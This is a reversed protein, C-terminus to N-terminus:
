KNLQNYKKQLSRNNDLETKWKKVEQAYGEQKKKWEARDQDAQRKKDDITKELGLAMNKQEIWQEKESVISKSKVNYEGIATQRKAINEKIKAIKSELESIQKNESEIQSNEKKILTQIQAEQKVMTAVNQDAKKTNEQIQTKQAALAKLNEDIAKINDETIKQNKEYSEKNKQSNEVNLDIQKLKREAETESFAVRGIFFVTVLVVIFQIWKMKIGRVSM